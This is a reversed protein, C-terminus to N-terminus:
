SKNIVELLHKKSHEDINKWERLAKVVRNGDNKRIMGNEVLWLAYESIKFAKVHFFHLIDMEAGDDCIVVANEEARALAIISLDADDLTKDTLDQYTQLKVPRITFKSLDLYDALYHKYEKVLEHTAHLDSEYFFDKLYIIGEKELREIKHWSCTDIVHM